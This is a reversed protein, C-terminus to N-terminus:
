EEDSYDEDYDEEEYWWEPLSDYHAMLICFGSLKESDLHRDDTPDFECTRSIYVFNKFFEMRMTLTGDKFDAFGKRFAVYKGKENAEDDGIRLDGYTPAGEADLSFILKGKRDSLTMLSRGEPELDVPRSWSIYYESFRKMEKYSAHKFPNEFGAPADTKKLVTEVSEKDNYLFLTGGNDPVLWCELDGSANIKGPITYSRSNLYYSDMVLNGPSDMVTFGYVEHELTLNDEVTVLQGALMGDSREALILDVSMGDATGTWHYVSKLEQSFGSLAVLIAAASFLLKNM